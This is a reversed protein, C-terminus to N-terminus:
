QNKGHKVEELQLIKEAVERPSLADTDLICDAAEKYLQERAKMLNEIKEELNGGSLLPRTTDNQLRNVLIEKKAKLYIVTGLEKLVPANGPFVPLGGGVSLVGEVKEDRMKVILDHELKRFYSEGDTAFIDSISRQQEKEILEDTDLFDVGMLNSLEKGVSTKGSGMFGILLSSLLVSIYLIIGTKVDDYLGAGVGSIVFALSPLNVIPSIRELESKSIMGSEYLNVAVKVGLPFGCFIGTILAILGYSNIGFCHEFWIKLRSKSKIEICSMWLDSLIMFPFVTPIIRMASLSMGNIVAVTLEKSFFLMLATLILCIIPTMSYKFDKKAQIPDKLTM